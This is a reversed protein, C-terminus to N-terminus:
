RVVFNILALEADEDGIVVSISAEYSGACLTRMREAPFLWTCALGNSVAAVALQGTGDDTQARLVARPDNHWLWRGYDARCCDSGQPRVAIRFVAGDTDGPGSGTVILYSDRWQGRRSVPRHLNSSVPM